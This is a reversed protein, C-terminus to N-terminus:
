RKGTAHVDPRPDSVFGDRNPMRVKPLTQQNMVEDRTIIRNLFLIYATVAYTEDASLTGPNPYYPMARHIYDWVSTSYPWYSGVTLVPDRTGLSGTGGVLQPGVPDRGEGREGHCGACKSAFVVEGHVASGSGVPLGTGDPLIPSEWKHIEEKTPVRGLHEAANQAFLWSLCPVFLSVLFAGIKRM